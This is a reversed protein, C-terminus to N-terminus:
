KDDLHKVLERLNHSVDRRLQAFVDASELDTNNGEAVALSFLLYELGETEGSKM